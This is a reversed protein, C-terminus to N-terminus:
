REVNESSHTEVADLLARAARRATRKELFASSREPGLPRLQELATNLNGFDEDLVVGIGEQLVVEPVIGGRMALVPMGVSVAHYIAHSMSLDTYGRLLAICHEAAWPWDTEVFKESFLVAGSREHDSLAERLERGYAENLPAIVVARLPIGKKRAYDLLEGLRWFHSYKNEPTGVVLLCPGDGPGGELWADARSQFRSWSESDQEPRLLAPGPRGLPTVRIPGEIRHIRRAHDVLSEETVFFACASRRVM